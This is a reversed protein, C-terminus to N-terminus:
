LLSVPDIDIQLGRTSYLEGLIAAPNKGRVIIHWRHLGKYQAYFCPAPGILSIDVLNESQIKEQLTNFIFRAQKEVYELSDSLFIIRALRSFPPYGIERRLQIEAQYFGSYDHEAAFQIAYHEPAYTQLIVKGGLIGRGARGAVQALLQFTREGARYDPLYLATDASIVGVLTVMPLDLGKAIMQTGILVNSKGSVFEALLEDHAGKGRTTDRDWRLPRASPFNNRVEQEIRETGGGFYKIHTSDCEPCRTPHTRRHDCQHCILVGKGESGHWAMPIQCRPCRLVFGCDRCFVHTAMGRRNLFLIVQQKKDLAQEIGARLERSFISRNNSRLEQRMDVVQIPPLEIMVAEAPDRDDHQYLTENEHFHIAHKAIAQRHGMIRGPLSVYRFEPQNSVSRHYTGIDPTASGLVVTAKCLRALEIATPLTHYYPQAM